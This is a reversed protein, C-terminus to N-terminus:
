KKEKSLMEDLMEVMKEHGEKERKAADRIAERAQYKQEENPKMILLSRDILSIEAELSIVKRM